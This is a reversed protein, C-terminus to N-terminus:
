FEKKAYTVSIVEAKPFAKNETVPSRKLVEFSGDDSSFSGSQIMDHEVPQDPIADISNRKNIETASQVEM